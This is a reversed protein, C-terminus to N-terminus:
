DRPKRKRKKKSKKQRKEIIAAKRERDERKVGSIVQEELEELPAMDYKRLKEVDIKGLSTPM